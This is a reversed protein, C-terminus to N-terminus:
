VAEPSGFLLVLAQTWKAACFFWVAGELVANPWNRRWLAGDYYCWIVAAIFALAQQEGGPVVAFAVMVGRVPQGNETVQVILPLFKEGCQLRRPLSRSVSGNM